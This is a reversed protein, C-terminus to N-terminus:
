KPGFAAASVLVLQTAVDGVAYIADLLHGDEYFDDDVDCGAAAIPGLMLLLAFLWRKMTRKM